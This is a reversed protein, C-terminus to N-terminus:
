CLVGAARSREATESGISGNDILAVARQAFVPALAGVREADAAAANGDRARAAIGEFIVANRFLALVMEFIGLRGGGGLARWYDDTFEEATPLGEAELDLGMVGGYEDPRLMWTYVCSHALDALPHGLTSLEWDLVAVVRPETPHFILNGVRFDGHVITTREGEPLNAPLWAALRDIEPISRTKSLHWQRTWRAIQRQYFNGRKGFSSLGAAEVDVMHIAALTKAMSRYMIRREAKPASALRSDRFIRGDIREMVYFATGILSEDENLLYVKPVPVATGQLAALVRFERDVAHASPLLTGPPRKRLVMRREGFTVFFTPNSQGGDISEVLMPGDLDAMERRLFDGLALTDFPIDSSASHETTQQLSRNM